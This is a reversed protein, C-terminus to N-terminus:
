IVKVYSNEYKYIMKIGIFCIICSLIVWIGMFLFDPSKQYIMVNRLQQIIFAIPNSKLMIANLPYSLKDTISYFIGTMYFVLKLGINVIYFLDELYVGLHMVWTCIGFTIIFLLVLLPIMYLLTFSFPVGFIPIMLFVILFSIMMKFGNVLMKQLILIYKPIYVKAVIASNTQILKVSTLVVKNFFNWASLGIFIFTEVHDIKSNFVTQSIFVYILMFCVPELIWWIWNLYSNTIEAKLEAKAAYVAYSFYKRIDNLFRKM